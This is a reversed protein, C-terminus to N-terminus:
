TTSDTVFGYAALATLLSALAANGGKAGTVAPKSGPVAHGWAGLGLPLRLGDAAFSGVDVNGCNFYAGSTAGFVVNLRAPSLSLGYGSLFQLGKSLDTPGSSLQDNFTIGRTFISTGTTLLNVPNGDPGPGAVILVEVLDAAAGTIWPNTPNYIQPAVIRWAGVGAQVQFPLLAGNVIESGIIQGQSAPGLRYHAVSSAVNSGSASSCAILNASGSTHQFDYAISGGSSCNILGFQTGISIETRFGCSQVSDVAQTEAWCRNLTVGGVTSMVFGVQWGVSSCGEFLWGDAKTLLFNPGQRATFDGGYYPVCHMKSVYGADGARMVYIGTACDAEISDAYVRGTECIIGTNFGVILLRDLNMGGMNNTIIHLAVSNGFRVYSDAPIPYVGAGMASFTVSVNPVVGTVTADYYGVPYGCARMGVTIGTTDAFPLTNGSATSASTKRLPAEAAWAAVAANAQATTPSALLGKRLIKFNSLRDGSQVVIRRSPNLIFAPGALLNGSELGGQGAITIGMPLTLDASDLLFQHDAPLVVEVGIPLTNLFAQISATDDTVGDGVAGSLLMNYSIGTASSASNAIAANLESAFLADGEKWPFHPRENM